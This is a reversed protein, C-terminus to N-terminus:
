WYVSNLVLFALWFYFTVCALAAFFIRKKGDPKKNSWTFVFPLLTVLFIFADVLLAIVLVQLLSDTV